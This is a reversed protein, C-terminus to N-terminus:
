FLVVPHPSGSRSFVSFCPFCSFVSGPFQGNPVRKLLICAQFRGGGGHKRVNRESIDSFVLVPVKWSKLLICAQFGLFGLVQRNQASYTPTRLGQDGFTVLPVLTRWIVFLRLTAMRAVKSTGLLFPGSPLSPGGSDTPFAPFAPFLRFLASIATGFPVM